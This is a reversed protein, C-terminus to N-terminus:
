GGRRVSGVLPSSPSLNGTPVPCLVAAASIRSQSRQHILGGLQAGFRPIGRLLRRRHAVTLLSAPRCFQRDPLPRTAHLCPSTPHYWSASAARGRAKPAATKQARRGLPLARHDNRFPGRGISRWIALEVVVVIMLWTSGVQPATREDLDDLRPREFCLTAAM